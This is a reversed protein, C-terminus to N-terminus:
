CSGLEDRDWQKEYEGVAFEYLEIEHAALKRLRGMMEEDGKWQEM